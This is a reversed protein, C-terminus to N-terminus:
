VEASDTNDGEEEELKKQKMQKKARKALKRTREEELLRQRNVSLYTTIFDADKEKKAKHLLEEVGDFIEVRTKDLRNLVKNDRNYCTKKRCLRTSKFGVEGPKMFRSKRLNTWPTIVIDCESLKNGQISKSKCLQLCDNVVESPVDEISKMGPKLQLYIHGSSYRDAHFWILNLEAYGYKLLLDNETKDKGVLVLFPDEAEIPKSEYVYVM